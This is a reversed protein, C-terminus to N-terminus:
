TYQAKLVTLHTRVLPRSVNLQTALEKGQPLADGVKCTQLLIERKILAVVSEFRRSTQIKPSSNKKSM